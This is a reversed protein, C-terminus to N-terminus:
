RWGAHYMAAVCLPTEQCWDICDINNSKIGTPLIDNGNLDINITTTWYSKDISSQECSKDYPCRTM